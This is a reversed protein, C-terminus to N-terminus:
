RKDRREEYGDPATFEFKGCYCRCNHEGGHGFTYCTSACSPKNVLIWPVSVDCADDQPEALADSALDCWCRKKSRNLWYVIRWRMKPAVKLWLPAAIHAIVSHDSFWRKM